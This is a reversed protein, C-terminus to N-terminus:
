RKPTSNKAANAYKKTRATRCFYHLIGRNFFCDRKSLSFVRKGTWLYMKCMPGLAVRYISQQAKDQVGQQIM